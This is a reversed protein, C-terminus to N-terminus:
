PTVPSAPRTLGHGLPFLGPLAVPLKGTIPIEGAIAKVVSQEAEDSFDYTLLMAPIESLGMAVYPSGFFAAVFPQNSRGAARGLEQLLSSSRRALDLRGTGSAARVFVGAVIADARSAMARVLALENPSTADSIEIAQVKPFKARLAPLLVRSPAAIRWGRPYDLVSLYLVDATAPLKIPVNNRDDKVLTMARESVQRAIAANRRTGVVSPVADLDIARSKHLGLRAKETLVRRASAEIRARTLVGSEVAAKLGRFAARTDSFDLLVDNGAQVAKVANEAPTGLKTVGEMQM